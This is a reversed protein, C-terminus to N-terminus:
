DNALIKEYFRYFVLLFFMWSTQALHCLIYHLLHIWFFSIVGGMKTCGHSYPCHHRQLRRMRCWPSTPTLTFAFLFSILSQQRSLDNM